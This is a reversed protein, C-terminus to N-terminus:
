YWRAREKGEENVHKWYLLQNLFDQYCRKNFRQAEDSDPCEFGSLRDYIEQLKEPELNWLALHAPRKLYSLYTTAGMRNCLDIMGPVEQWNVRMLTTSIVLRVNQRRSYDNFYELNKMVHEYVAGRRIMEYTEKTAGDISVGLRFRGRELRSKVRESLITGNTMVFFEIAPNIDLMTDWIDYYIDILFPEGGYFKAEKLHPIFEELQEVFAKDYPNPLPPLKDRNRRIASSVMGNCMICELNCTNTLDFEMVRPYQGHRYTAYKDFAQAKLGTFARNILFYECHQCGWSLDNHEMYDRLKKGTEGFWIERVSQEPYHGFLVKQNYICALARGGSCFHVSNFPLYCILRKPGLARTKNYERVLDPDISNYAGKSCPPRVFYGQLGKAYKM